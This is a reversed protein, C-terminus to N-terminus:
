WTTTLFNTLIRQFAEPQELNSLHGAHEIISCRAGPIRAAYDRAVEPPTLADEQGAIVLTPCTIQTLLDTSDTRLAMGRSLSAIGQTTASTIM